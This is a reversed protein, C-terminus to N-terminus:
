RRGGGSYGGGSSRGGGSSGGGSSRGGGSYGGGGSSRSSSSSSSRSSTISGIVSGATRIAAARRRDEEEQERRRQEERRREEEEERRRQEAEMEYQGNRRERDIDRNIDDLAKQADFLEKRELLEKVQDIGREISGIGYSSLYSSYKYKINLLESEAGALDSHCVAEISMLEDFRAKATAEVSHVDYSAKVEQLIAWAEEYRQDVAEFLMQAQSLKAMGAEKPPLESLPKLVMQQEQSGYAAVKSQLEALIRAGTSAFQEVQKQLADHTPEFDDRIRKREVMVELATRSSRDMQIMNDIIIGANLGGEVAKVIYARASSAKGISEEANGYLIGTQKIAEVRLLNNLTATVTENWYNTATLQLLKNLWDEAIFYHYSELLSEIGVKTKELYRRMTDADIPELPVFGSIFTPEQNALQHQLNRITTIANALQGIQEKVENIYGLVGESDLSSLLGEDVPTDYINDKGLSNLVQNVQALLKSDSEEPVIEDPVQVPDLLANIQQTSLPKTGRLSIYLTELSELDADTISEIGSSYQQSLQEFAEFSKQYVQQAVTILETVKPHLNPQRDGYYLVWLKYLESQEITRGGLLADCATVLNGVAYWLEQVHRQREEAAKKLAKSKRISGRVVIIVIILVFLLMIGGIAYGVISNGSQNSASASHSLSTSPQHMDADLDQLVATLEETLEKNSNNGVRNEFKESISTLKYDSILEELNAGFAISAYSNYLNAELILVFDYYNGMSNRAAKGSATRLYPEKTDLVTFWDDKSSVSKVNDLYVITQIGYKDYLPKAADCISQEDVEQQTENYIKVYECAWLSNSAIVLVLVFSLIARKLTDM